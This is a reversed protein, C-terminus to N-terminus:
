GRNQRDRLWQESYTMKEGSLRPREPRIRGDSSSGSGPVPPWAPWRASLPKRERAPRAVRVKPAVYPKRLRRPPSYPPPLRTGLMWCLPRLAKVIRPSAALLAAMEPDTFLFALQCGLNAAQMPVLPLLWAFNRPLRVAGEAPPTAPKRKVGPAPTPSRRTKLTGAALADALRQVMMAINMIKLNIAQITPYPMVRSQDLVRDRIAALIGSFRQM